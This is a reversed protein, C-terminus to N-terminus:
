PNESPKVATFGISLWAQMGGRYWFIKEKPFGMEVLVKIAKPSQVCWAGNCFLLVNKAESFDYGEKKKKIRLLNMLRVHEEPFDSDKQMENYPINVASPITSHRYWLETRSDVLIYRQPQAQAKKIFALVELEGFTRIKPDLAMPQVIGVTKLVTYRCIAPIKMIQKDWLNEPTIAIDMCASPEHREITLTRNRDVKVRVGTYQLVQLNESWMCSILLSLIWFVNCM